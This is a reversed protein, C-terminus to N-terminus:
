GLLLNAPLGQCSREVTTPRSCSPHWSVYKFASIAARSQDHENGVFAKTLTLLRRPFKISPPASMTPDAAIALSSVCAYPDRACICVHHLVRPLVPRIDPQLGLFPQVPDSHAREVVECLRHLGRYGDVGQGTWGAFDLSMPSFACRLKYPGLADYTVVSGWVTTAPTRCFRHLSHCHARHRAVWVSGSILRVACRELGLISM